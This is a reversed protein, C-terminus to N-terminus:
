GKQVGCALLADMVHRREGALKYMRAILWKPWRTSNSETIYGHGPAYANFTGAYNCDPCTVLIRMKAPSDDTVVAKETGNSGDVAGKVHREIAVQLEVHNHRCKM